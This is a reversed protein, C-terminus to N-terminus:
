ELRKSCRHAWSHCLGRHLATQLRCILIKYVIRRDTGYLVTRTGDRESPACTAGCAFASRPLCAFASRASRNRDSGIRNERRKKKKKKAGSSRSTRVRMRARMPAYFTKGLGKETMAAGDVM